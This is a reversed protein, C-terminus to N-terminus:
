TKVTTSVRQKSAISCTVVISKFKKNSSDLAYVRTVLMVVVSIVILFCKHIKYYCKHIKYICYLM